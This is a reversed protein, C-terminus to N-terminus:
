SVPPSTKCYVSGDMQLRNNLYWYGVNHMNTSM